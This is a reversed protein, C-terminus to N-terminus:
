ADVYSQAEVLPMSGMVSEAELSVVVVSQLASRIRRVCAASSPGEHAGVDMWAVLSVAIGHFFADLHTWHVPVVKGCGREM